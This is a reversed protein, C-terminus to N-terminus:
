ETKLPNLTEADLLPIGRDVLTAWRRDADHDRLCVAHTVTATLNVAVRGGEAEIRGRLADREAPSGGLLLVRRGGLRGPARKPATSWPAPKPATTTCSHLPLDLGRRDALVMSRQFVEVTALVDAAADHERWDGVGWYDAVSRLKLDRTPLDLRRTLAMTCLRERVPLPQRIRQAEASLFSWDFRANHAVLVRGDLMRGLHEAVDDYRPAGALRTRTLGHIHVPGPDCGPNLLTSWSSEVALDPGLQTVAIQLVRDSRASLGSTEVDVVAYSRPFRQAVAAGAPGSLIPPQM